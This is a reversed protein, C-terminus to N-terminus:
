PRLQARSGTVIPLGASSHRLTRYLLSSTLRQQGRRTTTARRCSPSCTFRPSRAEHECVRYPQHRYTELTHPPGPPFVAHQPIFQAHTVTKTSAAAGFGHKGASSAKTGEAGVMSYRNKRREETQVKPTGFALRCCSCANEQRFIAGSSYWQQISIQESETAHVCNRKTLPSHRNWQVRLYLVQRQREGIHADSESKQAVSGSFKAPTPDTILTCRRLPSRRDESAGAGKTGYCYQLSLRNCM